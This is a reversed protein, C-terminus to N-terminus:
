VIHSFFKLNAFISNTVQFYWTWTAPLTTKQCPIICDHQYNVIPQSTLEVLIREVSINFLNTAAVQYFKLVAAILRLNFQCVIIIGYIHIKETLPEFIRAFSSNASIQSVKQEAVANPKKTYRYLLM